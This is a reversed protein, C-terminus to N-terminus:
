QRDSNSPKRQLPVHHGHAVMKNAFIPFSKSLQGM